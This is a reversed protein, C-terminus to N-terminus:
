TPTGIILVAYSVGSANDSTETNNITLVQNTGAAVCGSRAARADM